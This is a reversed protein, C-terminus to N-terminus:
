NMLTNLQLIPQMVSVVIFLVIMAMAVILAPEFIALTLAIRSQLHAEQNETARQMLAGLQGSKEGSAIMYLMMSPFIQAKELSQSISNGQRVNESAHCLRQRIELNAVGEASLSMGQLLPVGSAILISLTRLYRASNIACTLPATIRLTILMRHFRLRNEARKLWYSFITISLAFCLLLWPGVTSLFDSIALLCQTTLPLDHKLHIFQATVKPVVTTLLIIVVLVAVTTLLSPYILAQMVKSRMRQRAESYDALKELVTSLLGTAEGAKVLTCFVADFVRPHRQMAASLPQGELIALRLSHVVGSLNKNEKQQQIVALAEDLPLSAAILTALQRTFLTLESHSVRAPPLRFAIARRQPKISQPLLNQNRLQTVVERESGAEVVGKCRNGEVDVAQWHYKM